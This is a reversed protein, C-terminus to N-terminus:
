PCLCSRRRRLLLIGGASLMLVWTSPEPVANYAPADLLQFALKVSNQASYGSLGSLDSTGQVNPTGAPASGTTDWFIITNDSATGMTGEHLALWYAGVGLSISGLNVLFRYEDTGSNRTGNNILQVTSDSGLAQSTGPAGANDLLIRFGITGGFQSPVNNINSSGFFILGQLTAANTLTFQQAIVFSSVNNGNVGDPAGGDYVVAAMSVPALMAAAVVFGCTIASLRKLKRISLELM